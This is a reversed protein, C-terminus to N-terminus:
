CCLGQGHVAQCEDAARVCVVGESMASADPWSDIVQQWSPKQLRNRPEGLGAAEAARTLSRVSAFPGAIVEVHKEFVEFEDTDISRVRLAFYLFKEPRSLGIRRYAEIEALRRAERRDAAEVITRVHSRLTLLLSLRGPERLVEEDQRQLRRLKAEATKRERARFHIDVAMGGLDVAAPMWARPLVHCALFYPM